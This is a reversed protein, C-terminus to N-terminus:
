KGLALAAAIGRGDMIGGAALITIERGEKEKLLSVADAVEPVLSIISANRAFQHGGADSGQVVLVDAEDAVAEVAARVCGVQVFVQIPRDDDLRRISEILRTHQREAPAFLWVALPRYRRLLPLLGSADDNHFTLFGIGIPLKRGEEDEEIGLLERAHVLEKELALLQTSSTTFDFGAVIFGLGGAQTVAVALAATATGYMPANVILPTKM